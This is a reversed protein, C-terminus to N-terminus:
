SCRADASGSASPKAPPGPNNAYGVTVKVTHKKSKCGNSSLLFNNGKKFTLSTKLNILAAYLGPAPQQLDPGITITLTSGKIKGHTVYNNGISSKLLFLLENKGVYATVTFAVNQGTNVLQANAAGSGAKSKRCVSGLSAVIDDDSATCQPLGKTSLKLTSPITIKITGATTKSAPDNRVAITFKTNKPKSKTGAKGPTVSAAVQISPDQAHAVGTLGLTFAAVGAVLFPKRL